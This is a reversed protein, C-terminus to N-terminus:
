KWVFKKTKMCKVELTKNRSTGYFYLNTALLNIINLVNFASSLTKKLLNLIIFIFGLNNNVITHKGIKSKKGWSTSFLLIQNMTSHYSYYFIIAGTIAVVATDLAAKSAFV